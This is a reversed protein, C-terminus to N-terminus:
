EELVGKFSRRHLWCPGHERLALNHERTPYGKHQAFGYQPHAKHYHIMLRDRYVKAVISAAAISACRSDGKILAEVQVQAALDEPKLADVLLFGAKVRLNNWAKFMALKTANLINIEDITRNDVVGIGVSIAGALIDRSLSLRKAHTLAKSDKLSSVCGRDFVTIAAVVPGALPGRGVEDCGGVLGYGSLWLDEEREWTAM